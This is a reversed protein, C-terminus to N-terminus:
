VMDSYVTSNMFKKNAFMFKTSKDIEHTKLQVTM